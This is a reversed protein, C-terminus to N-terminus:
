EYDLDDDPVSFMRSQLSLKEVHKVMTKNHGTEEDTQSSDM